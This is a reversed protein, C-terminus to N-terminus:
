YKAEPLVKVNNVAFLRKFLYKVKRFGGFSEIIEIRINRKANKCIKRIVSKEKGTLQSQEIYSLNYVIGPVEEIDVEGARSFSMAYNYILKQAELNYKQACEILLECILPDIKSVVKKDFSKYESVAYNILIEKCEERNQKDRLLVNETGIKAPYIKVIEGDSMQAKYILQGEEFKVIINSITVRQGFLPIIVRDKKEKGEIAIDEEFDKQQENEEIAQVKIDKTQEAAIEEIISKALEEIPDIEENIETNELVQVNEIEEIEAIEQVGPVVEEINIEEIEPEFEKINLEEIQEFEEINLEEIPKFEEVYLEEIGEFEEVYIDEVTEIEQVTVEEVRVNEDPTVFDWNGNKIEIKATALQAIENENEKIQLNLSEIKELNNKAFEEQIKNERVANESLEPVRGFRAFFEQSQLEYRANREKQKANINELEQIEGNIKRIKRIGEAVLNDIVFSLQYKIERINSDLKTQLEQSQNGLKTIEQGLKNIEEYSSNRRKKKNREQALKTRKEEIKTIQKQMEKKENVFNKISAQVEEFGNM